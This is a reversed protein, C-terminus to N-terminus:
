TMRSPEDSLFTDIEGRVRDSQGLGLHGGSELSVLRAGPIRESARLAAEHSALPDDVAHVILTPVALEELPYENIEPNSVFADFIAGESRAGVPFISSLMEGIETAEAENRPFGDPVGMLQAVFPPALTKMTWMMPDNYFTTAWAPPAESTPSGPWNGSSVILHDVYEPHRLALQIAASTGASIGIVSTADVGLHDLLEVFVDAQRGASPDTPMSSGLYGFRSPSIVRRDTIM